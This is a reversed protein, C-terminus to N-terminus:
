ATMEAPIASIWFVHIYDPSATWAAEASELMGIAFPQKLRLGEMGSHRTKKIEVVSGIRRTESQDGHRGPMACSLLVETKEITLRDFVLIIQEM